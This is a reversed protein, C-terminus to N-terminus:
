TALFALVRLGAALFATLAALSADCAPLALAALAGFAALGALDFALAARLDDSVLETDFFVEFFDLGAAAWGGLADFFDELLALAEFGATFFAAVFALTALLGLAAFFDTLFALGTSAFAALFRLAGLLGSLLLSSM